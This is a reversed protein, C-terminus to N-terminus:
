AKKLRKLGNSLVRMKIQNNSNYRQAPPQPTPLVPPLLLLLMTSARSSDPASSEAVAAIILEFGKGLGSRQQESESFGPDTAVVTTVPPPPM